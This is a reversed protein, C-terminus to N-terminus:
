YARCRVACCGTIMSRPRPTTVLADILPQLQGCHPAKDPILTHLRHTLICSRKPTHESTSM